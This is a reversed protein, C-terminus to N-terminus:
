GALLALMAEHLRRDGSFIVQGGSGLGLPQNQWNSAIGGAGEIIPVQACYDYPKLSAEIVCDVFGLAVLGYAYCDAGWRALKVARRARDFAAVEAGKFMDPATAFLTATEPGACARVRIPRGNLTSAYGAAGAWRERSIPQDLVGLVPRGHHLLSILTGFLPLGSIFSKTGDIPDLVWVFEADEREPGFEEGFIGHDPFQANIMGRMAAEADRDAITVPSQDAKDIIEVSSRFHRRAIEGATDALREALRRHPETIPTGAAM